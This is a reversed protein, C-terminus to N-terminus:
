FGGTSLVTCPAFSELRIYFKIDLFEMETSKKAVYSTADNPYKSLWNKTTSLYGLFSFTQNPM